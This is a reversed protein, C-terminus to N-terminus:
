SCLETFNLDFYLFKMLSFADLFITQSITAMKDQPRNTSSIRLCTTMCICIGNINIEHNQYIVICCFYAFM